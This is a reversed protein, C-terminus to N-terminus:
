LATESDDVDQEAQLEWGAPYADPTWVCGNM